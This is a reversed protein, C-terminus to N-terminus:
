RGRKAMSRCKWRGCRRAWNLLKLVMGAGDRLTIEAVEAGDIQGFQTVSM